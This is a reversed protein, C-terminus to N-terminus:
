SRGARNCGGATVAGSHRQLEGLVEDIDRLKEEPPTKGPLRLDIMRDM